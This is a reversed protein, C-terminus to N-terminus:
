PAPAALRPDAVNNEPDPQEAGPALGEISRLFENGFTSDNGTMWKVAGQIFEVIGRIFDVIPEMVQGAADRLANMPNLDSILGVVDDKLSQFGNGIGSFMGGIGDTVSSFANRLGGTISDLFGPEETTNTETM